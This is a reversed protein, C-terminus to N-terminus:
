SLVPFPFEDPIVLKIAFREVVAFPFRLHVGKSPSVLFQLHVCISYLVEMDFFTVQYQFGSLFAAVDRSGNAIIRRCPNSTFM